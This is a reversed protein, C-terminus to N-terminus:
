YRDHGPNHLSVYTNSLLTSRGLPTPEGAPPLCDDDPLVVLHRGVTATHIRVLVQLIDLYVALVHQVKALSPPFDTLPEFLGDSFM